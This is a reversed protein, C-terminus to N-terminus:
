SCKATASTPAGLPVCVAGMSEGDCLQSFFFVHVYVFCLTAKVM